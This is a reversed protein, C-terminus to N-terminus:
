GGPFIETTVGSMEYTSSNIRTAALSVYKNTILWGDTSVIPLKVNGLIWNPNVLETNILYAAQGYGLELDKLIESLPHIYKRPLLFPISSVCVVCFIIAGYFHITTLRYTTIPLKARRNKAKSIV